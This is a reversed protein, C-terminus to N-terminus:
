SRFKSFIHRTGDKNPRGAKLYKKELIFPLYLEIKKLYAWFDANPTQFPFWFDMACKNSRDLWFMISSQNEQDPLTKRTTPDIFIFDYTLLLEIPGFAAPPWPQGTILYDLAKSLQNPKISWTTQNPYEAAVPATQGRGFFDKLQIITTKAREPKKDTHYPAYATLANGGPQLPDANTCSTLFLKISEWAAEIKKQKLAQTTRSKPLNYLIFPRSAIM